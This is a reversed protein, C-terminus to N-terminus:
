ACNFPRCIMQLYKEAAISPALGKWESDHPPEQTEILMAEYARCAAQKDGSWTLALSQSAELAILRKTFASPVRVM